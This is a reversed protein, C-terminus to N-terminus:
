RWRRCIAGTPPPMAYGLFAVRRRSRRRRAQPISAASRLTSSASHTAAAARARAWRWGSGGKPDQGMASEAEMEIRSLAEPLRPCTTSAALDDASGMICFVCSVRSTKYTTYAEHLAFGRAALFAFVDPTSWEIIPNWDYGRTKHTISTLKAQEKAIPAKKRKASEDRRIGSASVITRGPFRRVLERCIVATKLESTCFRMSPTSWPLILKVCELTAYREVNNSWRTLWRDMMDGAARRVVILELGLLAALRECVPLSEKWEVRGLDSHVLVRPGAHGIADLHAVTALACACSDKGGSVGIAVPANSALLAAITDDTVVPRDICGPARSKLKITTLGNM